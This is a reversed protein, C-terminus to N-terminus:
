ADSREAVRALLLERLSALAADWRGPQPQRLLHASPYWPTTEGDLGWRWDPCRQLLLVFPHGLAGALHAVSTDVSVVLDLQEILAATDAMDTQERGVSLVAPWAALAPQDREPVDMQLSVFSLGPLGHLALRLLELPISRRADDPHDPNGAWALGVRLPGRAAPSRGELGLRQRWHDRRTAAAHVYPASMTLPEDLQLLHPLSLLSGRLEAEDGESVTTVLRCGAWPTPLLPLLRPSVQLTVVAGRALVEPVYRIFQIADGLGQESLLLVHRGRLDAGPQWGAPKAAPAAPTASPAIAAISQMSSQRQRWEYQRWGESWRGQSLWAIALDFQLRADGAHRQVQQQLFSSAEDFRLLNMLAFARNHLADAHDPDAALARELLELAREHRHEGCLAAGLSALVDAAAASSADPQMALVRDFEAAAEPFRRLDLLAAGRAQRLRADGADLALAADAAQLADEPRKALRLADARMGWATAAGPDIALWRDIAQMAAETERLHLAVRATAEWGAGSGPELQTASRLCPLAEAFRRQQELVQALALWGQAFDRRLSVVQRYQAEAEDLRGQAALCQGLFFATEHDAPDLERARRYAAESEALRGLRFLAFGCNVQAPAHGPRLAAFREYHALATAANGERLAANGARRADEAADSAPPSAPQRAGLLKKLRDLLPM